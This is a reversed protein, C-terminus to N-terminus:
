KVFLTVANAKQGATTLVLPLAGTTSGAPVTVNVQWLGVLTPVLGCFAVPASAGDITVVPNEACQALPVSSYAQKGTAIAPTLPGLGTAYLTIVTGRGAPNAGTNIAGDINQAVVPTSGSPNTFLGPSATQIPVTVAPAANGNLSVVVQSSTKGAVEFPVQVALQGSSLFFFPAPVGDFAVRTGSFVSNLRNSDPALGPSVVSSLTSLGTGFVAAIVGASIGRGFGAADVFGAATVGPQTTGVTATASLNFPEYGLPSVGVTQTGAAPGLVWTATAAGATDTITKASQLMGGGSVVKWVIPVGAVPNSGSGAFVTMKLPTPLPNDPPGTQGGGATAVLLSLNGALFAAPAFQPATASVINLGGGPGLTLKTSAQGAANTVATAPSVTGGGLAPTFTVTVGAVVNGNADSAQVVLPDPLAAGSSGSQNAGSVVVLSFPGETTLKFSDSLFIVEEGTIITVSFTAADVESLVRYSVTLSVPSDVRISNVVIDGSGFGVATIGQRFNTNTGVVTVTGTNGIRGIGPNLTASATPAPNFTFTPPDSLFESGQGDPNAVFVAAPHAGKGQPAQVVLQTSSRSTVTAPMGEFFVQAGSGFNSGSITVVSGASGSSPLVASILPPGGSVVRVQGSSIFTDAGNRFILPHSGLAANPGAQLDFQVSSSFVSSTSAGVLISGVSFDAGVFGVTLGPTSLGIGSASVSVKGNQPVWVEAIGRSGPFSSITATELGLPGRPGVTVNVGPTTQGAAVTFSAAGSPDKAAAGGAGFFVSDIKTNITVTAGGLIPSFVLDDPDNPDDALPSPAAGHNLPEVMMRYSGPPLGSVTFTGDPRTFVGIAASDTFATVAVMAAGSGTATTVRGSISGTSSTFSATPYLTSIMAIDDETLPRSRPTLVSQYMVASTMSHQAGLSHGIEHVLITLFTNSATPTRSMDIPLLVQSFSIPVYAPAGSPMFFIPGGVAAAGPPLNSTFRLTGMPNTSNTGTVKTYGGFAVRLSSSTVSNWISAAETVESMLSELSDNPAMALPPQTSLYFTITSNALKSVDYHTVIYTNPSVSTNYFGFTHYCWAPACFALAALALIKERRRM